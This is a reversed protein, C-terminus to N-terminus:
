KVEKLEIEAIESVNIFKKENVPFLGSFMIDSLANQADGLSDYKKSEIHYLGFKCIESKIKLKAVIIYEQKDCFLNKIKSFM